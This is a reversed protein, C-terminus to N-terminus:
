LYMLVKIPPRGAVQLRYEVYGSWGSSRRPIVHRVQVLYGLGTGPTARIPFAASRVSGANARPGTFRYLLGTTATLPKGRTAIILTDVSVGSRIVTWTL